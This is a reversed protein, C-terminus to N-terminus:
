NIKVMGGSIETMASGKLVAKQKGNLNLMGGAVDVSQQGEIKATRKAKVTLTDCSIEIAGSQGNLSIECKGAKITINKEADIAIDGKKCDISIKNKSSKDSVQIM